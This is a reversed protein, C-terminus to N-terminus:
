GLAAQAGITRPSPAYVGTARVLPILLPPMYRRNWYGLWGPVIHAAPYLLMASPPSKVDAGECM